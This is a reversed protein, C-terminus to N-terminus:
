RRHTGGIFSNISFGILNPLFHETNLTFYLMGPAPKFADERTRNFKLYFYPYVDLKKFSFQNEFQACNKFLNFHWTMSICMSNGRNAVLSRFLKLVAWMSLMLFSVLEDYNYNSKSCYCHLFISDFYPAVCRIFIPCNSILIDDRVISNKWM